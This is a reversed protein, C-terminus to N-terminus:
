ACIVTLDYFVQYLLLNEDEVKNSSHITYSLKWFFHVELITNYKKSVSIQFYM